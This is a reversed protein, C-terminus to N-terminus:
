SGTSEKVFLIICIYFIKMSKMTVQIHKIFTKEKAASSFHFANVVTLDPRWLQTHIM